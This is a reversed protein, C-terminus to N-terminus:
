VSKHSVAAPETGEVNETPRNTDILAAENTFRIVRESDKALLNELKSTDMTYSGILYPFSDPPISTVGMSWMLEIAAHCLAVSPLRTIKTGSLEACHAVSVPEGRAAVNLITLSDAEKKRSLLWAIVRAVDDVHVFQLKHELYERGFPLLLPLRKRKRSLMRGIRGPGYATGRVCNIMYNQVSAGAFIHPRLIYVDCRGLNQSRAQVALDAERKHVAYTLTHAKLEDNERAPRKLNPGYVSVSSLHILKDVKAGMRNAEAVAELVRATGAVNIRWMRDKDLIGTRLPDVVFALHVVGVAKTDRLIDAMRACSSEQGLDVKEFDLSTSADTPPTADLGIVHFDTLM